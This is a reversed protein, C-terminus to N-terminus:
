EPHLAVAVEDDLSPTLDLLDLLSPATAADIPVVYGDTQDATV